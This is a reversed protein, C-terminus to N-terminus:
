PQDPHPAGEHGFPTGRLRGMTQRMNELAAPCSYWGAMTGDVTVIFGRGDVAYRRADPNFQCNAEHRRRGAENRYDRVREYGAAGPRGVREAHPVRVGVHCWRCRGPNDYNPTRLRTLIQSRLPEPWEDLARAGNLSDDYDPETREQARAVRRRALDLPVAGTVKGWGRLWAAADDSGPPHPCATLDHGAAAATRGLDHALSL